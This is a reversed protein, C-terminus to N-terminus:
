ASEATRREEVAGKEVLERWVQPLRAAIKWLAVDYVSEGKENLLRIYVWYRGAMPVVYAGEPHRYLGLSVDVVEDKYPGAFAEALEKVHRKAVEHLARLSRVKIGRMM